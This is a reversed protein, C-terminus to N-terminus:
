RAAGEGVRRDGAEVFDGGCAIGWQLTPIDRIRHLPFSLTPNILFLVFTDLLIAGM